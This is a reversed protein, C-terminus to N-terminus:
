TTELPTAHHVIRQQRTSLQRALALIIEEDTYEEDDEVRDHIAMAIEAELKTVRIDSAQREKTIRIPM